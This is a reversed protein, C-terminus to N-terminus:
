LCVMLDFKMKSAGIVILNLLGRRRGAADGVV